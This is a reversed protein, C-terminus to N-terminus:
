LFPAVLRLMTRAMILWGPAEDDCAHEDVLSAPYSQIPQMGYLHGLEGIDFWTGGCAPCADLAMGKQISREMPKNCAPCTRVPPLAGCKSCVGDPKLHGMCARCRPPALAATFSPDDDYADRVGGTLVDRAAWFGYCAPCRMLPTASVAEFRQVPELPPHADCYPCALNPAPAPGAESVPRDAATLEEEPPTEWSGGNAVRARARAVWEDDTLRMSELEATAPM